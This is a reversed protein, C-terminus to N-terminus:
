TNLIPIIHSTEFDYKTVAKQAPEQSNLLTVNELPVLVPVTGVTGKM